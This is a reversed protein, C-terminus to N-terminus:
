QWVAKPLLRKQATSDPNSKFNLIRPTMQSLL